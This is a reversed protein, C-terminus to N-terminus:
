LIWESTKPRYRFPRLIWMSHLEEFVFPRTVSLLSCSMAFITSKEHFFDFGNSVLGNSEFEMQLFHTSKQVERTKMPNAQLFWKKKRDSPLQSTVDSLRHVLPGIVAHGHM